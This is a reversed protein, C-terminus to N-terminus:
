WYVHGNWPFSILNTNNQLSFAHNVWIHTVCNGWEHLQVCLQSYYCQVADVKEKSHFYMQVHAWTKRTTSIITRRSGRLNFLVMLYMAKGNWGDHIYFWCFKCRLLLFFLSFPHYSYLKTLGAAKLVLLLNNEQLILFILFVECTCLDFYM